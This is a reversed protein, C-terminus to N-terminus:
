KSFYKLLLTGATFILGSAMIFIGAIKWPLAKLSDLRASMQRGYTRESEKFTELEKEVKNSNAWLKAIEVEQDKDSLQLTKQSEKIEKIDASLNIYNNKILSELRAHQERDLEKIADIQKILESENM